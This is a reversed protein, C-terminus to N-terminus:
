HFLFHWIAYLVAFPFLLRAIGYLGAVVLIIAALVARWFDATQNLSQM